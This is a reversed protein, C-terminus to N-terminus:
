FYLFQTSWQLICAALMWAPQIAVGHHHMLEAVVAQKNMNVQATSQESTDKGATDHRAM